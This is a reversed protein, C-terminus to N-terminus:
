TNVGSLFGGLHATVALAAVGLLELPIRYAPLLTPEARRTRWHVWWSAIVLVAALSAAMLHWLLLGKLKKGELVFQWALLGTGVVPFVTVAAVSINLYAAVALHSLRKGRSLLDFLVGSLFLAIPFHILVVHQAHKAMLVTRLDFPHVSAM